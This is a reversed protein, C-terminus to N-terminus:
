DEMLMPTLMGGWFLGVPICSILWQQINNPGFFVTTFATFFLTGAVYLIYKKM